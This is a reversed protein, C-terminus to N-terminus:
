RRPGAPAGGPTVETPEPRVEGGPAVEAFVQAEFRRLRASPLRWAGPPLGAKESVGDLFEDVSWGQEVAVQPLLLGSTGRADLILGDRGVRIAARAAEPSGSPLPVPVSLVSVEVAIASLEAARIPRFRPDEVAAAVAARVIAEELPLVPLPYGICGRLAGSPHRRLTVFAGRPEAFVPPLAPLIGEGPGGGLAHAIAGRALRVALMGEADTLM